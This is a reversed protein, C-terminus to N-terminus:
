IEDAPTSCGSTASTKSCASDPAGPGVCGSVDCFVVTVFNRCLWKDKAIEIDESFSNGKPLKM